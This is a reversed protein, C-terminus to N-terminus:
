SGFVLSGLGLSHSNASVQCTKLKCISKSNASNESTEFEPDWIGQVFDSLLPISLMLRNIYGSFVTNRDLLETM